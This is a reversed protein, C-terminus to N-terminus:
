QRWPKMMVNTYIGSVTALMVVLFNNTNTNCVTQPDVFGSLNWYFVDFNSKEVCAQTIFCVGGM